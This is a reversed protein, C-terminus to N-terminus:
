ILLKIINLIYINNKKTKFISRNIIYILYNNYILYLIKISGIGVPTTTKFKNNFNNFYVSYNNYYKDHYVYNKYFINKM